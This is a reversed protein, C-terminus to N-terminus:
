KKFLGILGDVFATRSKDTLVVDSCRKSWTWGFLALVLKGKWRGSDLLKKFEGFVGYYKGATSDDWSDAPGVSQAATFRKDFDAWVDGSTPILDGSANPRADFFAYAIRPIHDVPTDKVLYKRDYIGWSPWYATFTPKYVRSTTM